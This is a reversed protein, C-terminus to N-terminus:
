CFYNKTEGYRSEQKNGRHRLKQRALGRSVTTGDRTMHPRRGKSRMLQHVCPGVHNSVRKTMSLFVNCMNLLGVSSLVTLLSVDWCTPISQVYDSSPHLSMHLPRHRQVEHHLFPLLCLLLLCVSNHARGGDAQHIMSTQILWEYVREYENFTNYSQLSEKQDCSM